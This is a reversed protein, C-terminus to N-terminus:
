RAPPLVGGRAINDDLVAFLPGPWVVGKDAAKVAVEHVRRSSVAGWSELESYTRVMPLLTKWSLVAALAPGVSCLLVVWLLNEATWNGYGLLSGVGLGVVGLLISPIVWLFLFFRVNPVIRYGYAYMELAILVDVLVRELAPSRYPLKLYDTAAKEISGRDMDPSNLARILRKPKREHKWFNWDSPDDCDACGQQLGISLGDIIEVGQRAMREFQTPDAGEKMAHQMAAATLDAVLTGRLSARKLASTAEDSGEELQLARDIIRGRAEEHNRPPGTWGGWDVESAERLGQWPM